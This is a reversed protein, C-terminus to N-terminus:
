RLADVTRLYDCIADRERKILRVGSHSIGLLDVNSLNRGGSIPYLRSFYTPFEKVMEIMNRKVNIKPNCSLINSRDIGSIKLQSQLKLKEESTLRICTSSFADQLIQFFVLQIM